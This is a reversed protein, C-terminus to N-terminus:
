ILQVIKRKVSRVFSKMRGVVYNFDDLALVLRWSGNELAQCYMNFIRDSQLKKRSKMLFALSEKTEESEILSKICSISDQRNIARNRNFILNKIFREHIYILFREDELRWSDYLDLFATKVKCFIDFRDPIYHSRTNGYYYVYYDYLVDGIISVREAKLYVSINFVEDQQIRLNPFRLNNQLLFEREYVKNWVFGNNFNMGSLREIYIDRLEENTCCECPTLSFSVTTQYTPNIENYGYVLLQPNSKEIYSNIRELWYPPVYDDIDFFCIYRGAALELGSNRASGLGSNDQHVVKFNRHIGATEDCLLSTGDTSGDDVLIVEFNKFTQEILCQSFRQYYRKANYLGVVVSFFAM